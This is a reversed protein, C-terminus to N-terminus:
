DSASLCFSEWNKIGREIERSPIGDYWDTNDRVHILLALLAATQQRNLRASRGFSSPVPKRLPVRLESVFNISDDDLAIRSMGPIFYRFADPSLLCCSHGLAEVSLTVIVTRSLQETLERCELCACTTIVSPRPVDGFARDIESLVASANLGLSEPM